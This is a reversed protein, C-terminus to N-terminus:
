SGSGTDLFPRKGFCVRGSGEHVCVNSGSPLKFPFSSITNGGAHGGGIVEFMSLLAKPSTQVQYAFLVFYKGVMDYVGPTFSGRFAGVAGGSTKDISVEYARTAVGSSYIRFIPVDDPQQIGIPSFPSPSLTQLGISFAQGVQDRGIWELDRDVVLGFLKAGMGMSFGFSARGTKYSTPTTGADIPQLNLPYFNM